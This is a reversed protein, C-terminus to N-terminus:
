AHIKNLMNFINTTPLVHTGATHIGWYQLPNEKKALQMLFLEAPIRRAANTWFCSFIDKSQKPSQNPCQNTNTQQEKKKLNNSPKRKIWPALFQVRTWSSTNRCCPKLKLQLRTHRERTPFSDAEEGGYCKKSQKKNTKSEKLTSRRSLGAASRRQTETLCTSVYQRPSPLIKTRRFQWTLEWVVSINRSNWKYCAPLGKQEM